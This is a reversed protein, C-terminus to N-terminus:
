RFGHHQGRDIIRRDRGSNVEFDIPVTLKRSLSLAATRVAAASHDLNIRNHWGAVSLGAVVEGINGLVPSAVCAVGARSEQLDYAIGRERIRALEAVFRKPQSITRETLRSLRHALLQDVVSADSFALIAKGIGTGHAPWRGGTRTPLRPASPSRLVELYVVEFGELVALHVQHGTAQRLDEIFPRAAERLDRQRPVQQGLEFLKLGLQYRTDDRELLGATHLARLTRLMSSKAFGCRRALESVGLSGGAAALAELVATARAISGNAGGALQAAAPRHREVARQAQM